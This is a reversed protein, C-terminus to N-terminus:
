FTSGAFKLWGTSRKRYMAGASDFRIEGVMGAVDASSTPAAAASLKAILTLTPAYFNAPNVYTEQYIEVGDAKPIFRVRRGIDGIVYYNGGFVHMQKPATEGVGIPTVWIEYRSCPNQYFWGTNGVGDSLAMTRVAFVPDPSGNSTVYCDEYRITYGNFYAFPLTNDVRTQIGNITIFASSTGFSCPGIGSGGSKLIAQASIRQDVIIPTNAYGQM